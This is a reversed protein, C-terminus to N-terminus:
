YRGRFQDNRANMSQQIAADEAAESNYNGGYGNNNYGGGYQQPQQYGGGGNGGGGMYSGMFSGLMPAGFALAGVGGIIAGANNRVTNYMNTAKDKWDAAQQAVDAFSGGGAIRTVANNAKDGLFNKRANPDNVVNHVAKQASDQMFKAATDTAYNYAADRANNFTQRPHAIANSVSDWGVAKTAYRAPATVTDYFGGWFGRQQDAALKVQQKRKRDEEAVWETQMNGPAPPMDGTVHGGTSPTNYFQVRNRIGTIASMCKNVPSDGGTPKRTAPVSPPAGSAQATRNGAAASSPGGGGQPPPGQQGARKVLLTIAITDYDNM